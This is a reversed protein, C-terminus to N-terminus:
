CHSYVRLNCVPAAPPNPLLPPPKHEAVVATKSKPFRAAQRQEGNRMRAERRSGPSDGGINILTERCNCGSGGKKEMETLEVDEEPQFLLKQLPDTPSRTLPLPRSTLHASLTKVQQRARICCSQPPTHRCLPWTQSTLTYISVSASQKGGVWM